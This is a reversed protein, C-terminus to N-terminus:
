IIILILQFLIFQFIETLHAKHTGVANIFIFTGVTIIICFIETKYKVAAM